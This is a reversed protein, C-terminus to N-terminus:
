RRVFRCRRNVGGMFSLWRGLELVSFGLHRVREDDVAQLDGFNRVLGLGRDLLQLPLDADASLAAASVFTPSSVAVTEVLSPSIAASSCFSL